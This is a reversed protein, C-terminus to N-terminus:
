FASAPSSASRGTSRGPGVPSSSRPSRSIPSAAPSCGAGPAPIAERYSLAAGTQFVGEVVFFAVLVATLSVVGAAPKFLLALGVAIALIATVLAWWFGPIHRASFMAALALLGSLLFLWGLYLDVALTAFVPFAIALVGLVIMVIGEFVYLRWHDKLADAIARESEFMTM